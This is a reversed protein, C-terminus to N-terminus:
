KEVDRIRARRQRESRAAQLFARLLPHNKGELAAMQPIFLTAMFFPRDTMEVARMEGSDSFGSARLPDRELKAAWSANVGFNCFFPEIAETKGYIEALRSQPKFRVSASRKWLSQPLRTIVCTSAHAATEEHDAESFGLVNRAWEILAHQFGGCAGLFIRREERIWRLASLAGEFSSYPSGPAGMFADFAALSELGKGDAFRRTGLWHAAAFGGWEEAGLRLAASTARHSINNSDYDGIIGIRLTESM